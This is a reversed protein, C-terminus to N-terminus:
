VGGATQGPVGTTPAPVGATQAQVAAPIRPLLTRFATDNLATSLVAGAKEIEIVGEKMLLLAEAVDSLLPHYVEQIEPVATPTAVTLPLPVARAEITLTTATVPRRYVGLLFAGWLFYYQPTGVEALWRRRYFLQHLSVPRLDRFEGTAAVRTIDDGTITGLMVRRIHWARPMVQRLDVTLQEAVLAVTVRTILADPRFVCLLRLAPNLGSEVVEEDPYLRTNAGLKTQVRTILEATNM